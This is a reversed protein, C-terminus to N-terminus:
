SPPCCTSPSAGGAGGSTSTRPCPSGHWPGSPPSRAGANSGTSPTGAPQRRRQGLVAAVGRRRHGGGGGGAGTSPGNAHVGPASDRPRLAAPDRRPPRAPNRRAAARGQAARDAQFLRHPRHRPGAPRHRHDERRSPHHRRGDVHRPVLPLPHSPPHQRRRLGPSLGRGRRRAEGPPRAAVPCGVPLQPAASGPHPRGGPGPPAPRRRHPPVQPHPCRAGDRQPVSAILGDDELQRAAEYVASQSWGSLAAMEIRDLFPMAALRRFLERKGGTLPRM